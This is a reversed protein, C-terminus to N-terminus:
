TNEWWDPMGDAAGPPVTNNPDSDVTPFGYKKNLAEEVNLRQQETLKKDYLLLETILSATFQTTVGNRRGLMNQTRLINKLVKM